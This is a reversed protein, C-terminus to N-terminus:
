SGGKLKRKKTKNFFGFFHPLLFKTGMFSNNKRGSTQKKKRRSTKRRFHRRTKAM